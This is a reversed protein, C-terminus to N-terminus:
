AADDDEQGASIETFDREFRAEDYRALDPSFDSEGSVFGRMEDIGCVGDEIHGVVPQMVAGGYGCAGDLLAVLQRMSLPTASSAPRM